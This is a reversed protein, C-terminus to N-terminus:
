GHVLRTAVAYTSQTLAMRRKFNDQAAPAPKRSTEWSDFGDYWTVLMMRVTGDADASPCFLGQPEAAYDASSEFTEWAQKSLTVVEDVYAQPVMFRRFVYLGRRTCPDTTRPRITPQWVEHAVAAPSAIVAAENQLVSVVLLENSGPGFLGSFAGWLTGQFHEGHQVEHVLGLNNNSSSRLIQYHFVAMLYGDTSGKM